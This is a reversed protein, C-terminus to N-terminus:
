SLKSAVADRLRGGSNAIEALLSAPKWRKGYTEHWACVQRHIEAAGIGDAWYMLGGRHRPFGFGNLWMVDIDSARLAKGEDVIKCAENVSAFLLRRLVEEDSFSRQAIGFDKAVQAIVQGVVEDPHPTRDGPEYRYWGAGNKQGHRGMEVLRDPVHLKRYTPDAAARRKRTDYSVDLGSLDSVAFPGMPYGFDIMVKDIQQPLAGEELLLMMETVLAARSRNAAFGDCSGVVVSIKGLDRGMKAARLITEPSTSDGKVIECLKMVNAPAFFHSGAVLQPRRTAGAMVNIDIASSNTLLLADPKMVAELRNFIDIKLDIREFVAEIVADCQAIDEYREVPQILAIREDIEAQTISNRKLKIAYTSAIRQMGRELAEPSVELLKVPIGADAFVMAIGSGMTGAGIVAASTVPAPKYDTPAGPIKAATREAFFAYRLARAEDSTELESFYTHELRLGEEFPQNLSAEVLELAYRPAKIHRGQRAAVKRANDLVSPNAQDAQRKETMEHVAPLPRDHAVQRAFAIADSQLDGSSLETAVLGLGVAEDADVHRGSLILDLAAQAGILRPLRQTGGGAPVLGIKVEPLGFRARRTAVRYHCALAHELGGGLCYGDIAAVVPKSSNAIVAASDRTSVSRAKGFQRIDAGAIFHGGAGMLVIADVNPDLNAERVSDIVGERMGPALANLPPNFVTIVGIRDQVRYSVLATQEM